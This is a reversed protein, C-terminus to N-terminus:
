KEQDTKGDGENDTLGLRSGCCALVDFLNLGVNTHGPPCLSNVGDLGTIGFRRSVPIAVVIIAM